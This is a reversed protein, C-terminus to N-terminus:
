FIHINKGNMLALNKRSNNVSIRRRKYENKPM